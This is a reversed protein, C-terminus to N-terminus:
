CAAALTSRRQGPPSISLTTSPMSEAGFFSRTALEPFIKPALIKKAPYALNTQYSAGKSKQGGRASSVKQVGRLAVLPTHRRQRMGVNSAIFKTRVNLSLIRDFLARKGTDAQQNEGFHILRPAFPVREIVSENGFCHTSEASPFCGHLVNTRALGPKPRYRRAAHQMPHTAPRKAVTLLRRKSHTRNAKSAM